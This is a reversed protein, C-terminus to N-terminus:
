KRRDVVVPNNNFITKKEESIESMAERWERNGVPEPESSSSGGGGGRTARAEEDELSLMTLSVKRDDISKVRVQVKDNPKCVTAVSDVRGAALASIHVLGDFDGSCEPNLQSADVRVFAGFDVTSVVTGSVFEETNWGKELLSALVPGDDRRNNNNNNSREQRQPRAASAAQADAAQQEQDATLLTLAVQNKKDDINIIRVDLEQGEKLIDGVTAVYDVSLQSIHLLGDTVAGIDLFAGYSTITKVRGTTTDGIKLESLAKGTPTKKKLSKRAPREANHAEDESLVGDLAAVEEPVDLTTAESADVADAFLATSSSSQCSACRCFSLHSQSTCTSCFCGAPHAVTTTTPVPLASAVRSSSVFASFTFYLLTFYLYFAASLSYSHTLSTLLLSHSYFCCLVIIYQMLTDVRSQMSLLCAFLTCYQIYIRKVTLLKTDITGATNRQTFAAAGTVSAVVATVVAASFRMTVISNIYPLVFYLHSSSLIPLAPRTIVVQQHSASIEQHEMMLLGDIM